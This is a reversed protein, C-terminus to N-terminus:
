SEEGSSMQKTIRSAVFGVAFAAAVAIWPARKVLDRVDLDELGSPELIKRATEIFDQVTHLGKKATENIKDTKDRITESVKDPNRDHDEEM